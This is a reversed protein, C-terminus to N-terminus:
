PNALIIECDSINITGKYLIHPVYRYFLPIREANQKRLEHFYDATAKPVSAYSPLNNYHYPVFDDAVRTAPTFLYVALKEQDLTNPDIKYYYQPPADPFGARKREKYLERPDLSTMFIVDNWLCNDLPPIKHQQVHERGVYKAVQQGYIEPYIDKLSNLPYLTTGRMPQPVRHYLWNM